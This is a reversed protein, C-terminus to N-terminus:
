QEKAAAPTPTRRVANREQERKSHERHLHEIRDERRKLEGELEAIRAQARDYGELRAVAEKGMASLDAYEKDDILNAEHLEARCYRVLDMARQLRVELAPVPDPIGTLADRIEDLMCRASFRAEGVAFVGQDDVPIGSIATQLHVLAVRMPEIEPAVRPTISLDIYPGGGLHISWALRGHPKSCPGRGDGAAIAGGVVKRIAEVLVEPSAVEAVWPVAVIDFDRRMSGHIALAYGLDRAKVRLAGLLGSTPVSAADFGFVESTSRRQGDGRPRYANGDAIPILSDGRLEDLERELTGCYARIAADCEEQRAHPCDGTFCGMYSVANDSM